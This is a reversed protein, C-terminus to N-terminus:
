YQVAEPSFRGDLGVRAVPEHKILSNTHNYM